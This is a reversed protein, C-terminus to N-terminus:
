YCSFLTDKSDGLKKTSIKSKTQKNNKYNLQKIKIIRKTLQEWEVFTHSGMANKKRARRRKEIFRQKEPNERRWKKCREREQILHSHYYKRSAKRQHEIKQKLPMLTREKIGIKRRLKRAYERAYRRRDEKNKYPMKIERQPDLIPFM